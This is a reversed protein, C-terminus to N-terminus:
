DRLAAEPAGSPENGSENALTRLDSLGERDRAGGRAALRAGAFLADGGNNGSGVVLLVRAGYAGGGRLRRLVAGALGAAARQMLEDPGLADMAAAEAARVQAVTYGNDM